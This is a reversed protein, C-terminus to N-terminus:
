DVHIVWAEPKARADIIELVRLVHRPPKSIVVREGTHLHTRTLVRVGSSDIFTLQAMDIVVPRGPKMVEGIAEELQKATAMGLEGNLLISGDGDIELRAPQPPSSESSPPVPVSSSNPPVPVSVQVFPSVTSLQSAQALGRSWGPM